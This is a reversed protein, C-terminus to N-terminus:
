LNAGIWIKAFRKIEDAEVQSYSLDDISIFPAYMLLNAANQTLHQKTHENLFDIWNQGYLTLANKYKFLCIRKLLESIKIAATIPSHTDIKELNKLAYYKRSAKFIWFVLWTILICLVVAALIIWWGYALPFISVGEPIHIDKIDPLNNM